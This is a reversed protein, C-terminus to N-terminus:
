RILLRMQSPWLSIPRIMGARIGAQNLEEIAEDVIRSMTGFAVFVVEAGELKDAEYRVLEERMRQYKKENNINHEELEDPKLLLSKVVNRERKDGHGTLAM